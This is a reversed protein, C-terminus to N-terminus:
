ESEAAIDICEGGAEPSAMVRALTGGPATAHRAWGNM